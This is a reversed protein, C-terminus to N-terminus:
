KAEYGVFAKSQCVQLRSDEKEKVAVFMAAKEFGEVVKIAKEPLMVSVTKTLSDALWGQKAIVTASRRGTLGLGTKPDLVHSYRVGEIEVFQFLDGSTSVSANALVLRRPADGKELPAIEVVWGPKGPPVESVTIDGSAAVLASTVGHEKLVKIAADAAYGKGIGGLDLRMGAKALALTQDKANLKLMQFGVLERAVTLEKAEPLKKIKRATRWLKVIPGVTPDFAGDSANAIRQAKELVDFLDASAKRPKGPEADNAICLKMLESDTNYDSMVLELEAVRDFAARSAKEASPKDAAYLAMRWETGMHVSAFEFKEPPEAASSAFAFLVPYLVISSFACSIQM